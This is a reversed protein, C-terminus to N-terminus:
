WLWQTWGGVVLSSSETAELTGLSGLKKESYSSARKKDLAAFLLRPLGPSSALLETSSTFWKGADPVKQM